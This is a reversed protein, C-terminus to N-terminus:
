GGAFLGSPEGRGQPHRWDPGHDHTTGVPTARRDSCCGHYHLTNYEHIATRLGSSSLSVRLIISPTPMSWAWLFIAIWTSQMAESTQWITLWVKDPAAKGPSGTM